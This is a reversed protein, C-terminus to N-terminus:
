DRARGFLRRMGSRAAPGPVVEGPEAGYGFRAFDAAYLETIRDRDFPSLDPLAAEQVALDLEPGAAGAIGDLWATVAEEGEELRFVEAEAPVMDAMPRVANDFVWPEDPTREAIDELWEDFATSQPITGEVDRQFVYVARIRDVPHRVVAFNAAFFGPPFLRQLTKRGVHQPSTRSWRQGRPAENHTPDHFALPGFRAELHRIMAAGACGPVDAFYGLGGPMRFIPM